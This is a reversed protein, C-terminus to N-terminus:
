KRTADDEISETESEEDPVVFTLFICVHMCTIIRLNQIICYSFDNMFICSGSFTPSIKQQRQM